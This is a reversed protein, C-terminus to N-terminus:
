DDEIRILANIRDRIQRITDKERYLVSEHERVRNELSDIARLIMNVHSAIDASDRCILTIKKKM